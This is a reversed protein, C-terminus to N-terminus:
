KKAKPPKFGQDGSFQGEDFLFGKMHEEIMNISSPDATNLSNENIIMVLHDLWKKWGDQSVENYIREGLDGPHPAVSLGESEKKLVVCNVTRTM